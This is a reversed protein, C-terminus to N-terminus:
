AGVGLLVRGESVLDLSAVVKALVIPDHQAVLCIGTGVRLRSTAMAAATLAVFPDLTRRHEPRLGGLPHPHRRHVPMHTHEPVWLSEFGHQEVLTGLDHPVISEDTVFM